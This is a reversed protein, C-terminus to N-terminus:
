LANIDVAFHETIRYEGNLGYGLRSSADSSQDQTSVSTSNNITSTSGSILKFALESVTVGFNFHRFKEGNNAANSSSSTAPNPPPPQAPAGQQTDQGAAAYVGLILCVNLIAFKKLLGEGPISRDL